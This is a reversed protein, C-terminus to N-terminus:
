TVYYFLPFCGDMLWDMMLEDDMWTQTWVEPGKFMILKETILSNKLRLYGILQYQPFKKSHKM